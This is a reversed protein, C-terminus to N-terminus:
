IGANRSDCCYFWSQNALWKDINRQSFQSWHSWHLNLIKMRENILQHKNLRYHKVRNEEHVNTTHNKIFYSYSYIAINHTQTAVTTLFASFLICCIRLESFPQPRGTSVQAFQWSSSMYLQFLLKFV